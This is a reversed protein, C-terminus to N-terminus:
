ISYQYTGQFSLSCPRLPPLSFHIVQDFYRNDVSYQERSVLCDTKIDTLRGDSKWLMVEWPRRQEM